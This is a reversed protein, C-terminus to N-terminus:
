SGLIGKMLPDIKGWILPCLGKADGTAGATTVILKLAQARPDWVAHLKVGLMQTDIDWPNDGTVTMGEGHLKALLADKIQPTVRAYTKVGCLGLSERAAAIQHGRDIVQDASKAAAQRQQPTRATAAAVGTKHAAVKNAADAETVHQAAITGDGARVAGAATEMHAVAERHMALAEQLALAHEDVWEHAKPSLAYTAVGVGLVILLLPIM